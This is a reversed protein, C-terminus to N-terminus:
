IIFGGVEKYKKLSTKATRPRKFNRIFKLDTQFNKCVFLFLWSSNQYPNNIISDTPYYQWRLLVLDESRDILSTKRNIDVKIEKLWTKYNKSCLNQM